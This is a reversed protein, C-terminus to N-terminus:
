GTWYDSRLPMASGPRPEENWLGGPRLGTALGMRATALWPDKSLLQELADLDGDQVAATAAAALPDDAAILRILHDHESPITM